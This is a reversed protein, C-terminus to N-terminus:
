GSNNEDFLRAPWRGQPGVIQLTMYANVESSGSDVGGLNEEDSCAAFGGILMAAFFFHRLKM